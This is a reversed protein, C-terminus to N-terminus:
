KNQYSINLFFAVHMQLFFNLFIVLVINSLLVNQYKM